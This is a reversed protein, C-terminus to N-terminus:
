RRRRIVIKAVTVGGGHPRYATLRTVGPRRVRYLGAVVSGDDGRFAHALRVSRGAVPALRVGDTCASAFIIGIRGPTDDAVHATFHGAILYDLGRFPAATDGTWGGTGCPSPAFFTVRLFIRTVSGDARTVRLTVLGPQEARLAAAVVGGDSAKAIGQFTLAGRPLVSVRVGHGCDDSFQMLTYLGVAVHWPDRVPGPQLFQHVGLGDAGSYITQGCVVVPPAASTIQSGAPAAWGAVAAVALVVGVVSGRRVM